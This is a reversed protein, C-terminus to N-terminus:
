LRLFWGADVTVREVHEIVLGLGLERLKAALMDADVLDVPPAGDRSAERKADRTFVGTSIILGRDARGVMAGRFDRVVSAGISGRYRKCQFLVPFSLLGGLRVTGVGDIGGDGARGTVIVHTFGSERLLRQCLREFQEPKLGLLVRSLEENWTPAELSSQTEVEHNTGSNFDTPMDQKASSRSRSKVARKVERPDVRETARGADTLTWVGRASNSLLGYAKLYSRAWALRYEYRTRSGDATAEAVDEDSLGLVKAVAEALEENTASGGLSRFAALLPNFMHDYTPVAM